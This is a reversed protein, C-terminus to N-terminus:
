PGSWVGARKLLRIKEEVGLVWNAHFIFPKATNVIGEFPEGKDFNRYLLGTPFLSEPLPFMSKLFHPRREILRVLSPQMTVRPNSEREELFEAEHAEVIDLSRRSPRACFFGTCFTPPFAGISEIQSAYDYHELVRDLYDTPSRIWAVDLDAYIVKKGKKLFDIVIRFRLEILRSFIESGYISYELDFESRDAYDDLRIFNVGSSSTVGDRGVDSNFCAVFVQKTDIGSAIMSALANALLEQSEGVSFVIVTFESM